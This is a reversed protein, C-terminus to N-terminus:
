PNSAEAAAHGAAAEAKLREIQEVLRREYAAVQESLLSRVSARNGAPGLLTKDLSGPRGAADELLLDIERRAALLGHILQPVPAIRGARTLRQLEEPDAPPEQTGDQELALRIRTAQLKEWALLHALVEAICWGGDAPRRKFQEETVGRVAEFLAQRSAALQEQLENVTETEGM